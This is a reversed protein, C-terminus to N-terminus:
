TVGGERDTAAVSSKTEGNRSGKKVDGSEPDPDPSGKGGDGEQVVQPPTLEPPEGTGSRATQHNTHAILVRDKPALTAIIPTFCDWDDRRVLVAQAPGTGSIGAAIAGTDLMSLVLRNSQGYAAGYALSNRLMAEKWHGELAMKHAEEVMPKLPHTPVTATDITRVQDPPVVLLAELDGVDEQHMISRDQNNTVVLGGFYCAAADDFAGTITVGASLAAQVGIRIVDEHSLAGEEPEDVIRTGTAALVALVVANAASSSSKLGRQSPITSRTRVEVKLPEELELTALVRLACAEVLSPDERADGEILAVVEHGKAGKGAPNITAEALTALDIGIAAGRGTAIANVVTIAGHSWGWGRGPSAGGSQGESM